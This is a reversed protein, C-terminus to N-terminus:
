KPVGPVFGGLAEYLAMLEPSIEKPRTPLLSGGPNVQKVFTEAVFELPDTAAYGSIDTFINRQTPQSRFLLTSAAHDWNDKSKYFGSLDEFSKPNKFFHFAHGSEHQILTEPLPSVYHGADFAEKTAKTLAEWSTWSPEAMNIFISNNPGKDPFRKFWAMVGPNNTAFQVPLKMGKIKNWHRLAAAYNGNKLAKEMALMATDVVTIMQQNVGLAIDGHMTGRPFRVDLGKRRLAKQRALFTSRLATVNAATAAREATFEEFTQSFIGNRHADATILKVRRLVDSELGSVLGITCRCNPHAPPDGISFEKNAPVTKGQMGSCIPCILEDPSLIWVKLMGEPIEGSNIGQRWAKNVGRNLVDMSETRAITRSRTRLRKAIWNDRLKKLRRPKIGSRFLGTEFRRLANEQPKTLGIINKLRKATTRTGFGTIADGTIPDFRGGETFSDTVIGRIDKRLDEGINTVKKAIVQTASPSDDFKFPM